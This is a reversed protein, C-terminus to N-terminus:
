SGTLREFLPPAFAYVVLVLTLVVFIREVKDGKKTGTSMLKLRLKIPLPPLPKIGRRTLSDALLHLAYGLGGAIWLGSASDAQQGAFYLLVTWGALAYFTHTFGRHQVVASLVLISGAVSNWPAASELFAILGVGILLMALQRLSRGPVFSVSATLVGLVLHWPAPALEAAFIYVGAALLLVQLVRLLIGPIAKRALLSNPEDLDPALSSIAAIAVCPLTIEVGALQMISLSAGTGIILHSKGMM